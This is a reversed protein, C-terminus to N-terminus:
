PPHAWWLYKFDKCTKQDFNTDKELKSNQSERHKKCPKALNHRCPGSKPRKGEINGFGKERQSALWHNVM